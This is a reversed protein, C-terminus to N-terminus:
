LDKALQLIFAYEEQSVPQVSLRSGKRLLEMGALEPFNRLFSLSLVEKFKRLFRVDVVFWRPNDAPSSPDFHQDEPDYQTPDPYAKSAVEALGAIGVGTVSYYFLVKDGVQM